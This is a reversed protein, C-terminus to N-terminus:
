LGQFMVELGNDGKFKTLFGKSGYGMECTIIYCYIVLDFVLVRGSFNMMTPM